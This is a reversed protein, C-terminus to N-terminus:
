NVDDPTTASTNTKAHTQLLVPFRKCSDNHLRWFLDAVINSGATLFTRPPLVMCRACPRSAPKSIGPVLSQRITRVAVLFSRMLSRWWWNIACPQRLLTITRETTRHTPYSLFATVSTSWVHYAHALPSRRSTTLKQHKDPGPYPNWVM